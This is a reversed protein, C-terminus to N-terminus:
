GALLLGIMWIALLMSWYAFTGGQNPRAKCSLGDLLNM